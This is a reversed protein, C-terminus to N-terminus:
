SPISVMAPWTDACLLCVSGDIWAVVDSATNKRYLRSCRWTPRSRFPLVSAAKLSLPCLTIQETFDRIIKFYLRYFKTYKLNLLGVVHQTFEGFLVTLLITNLIILV